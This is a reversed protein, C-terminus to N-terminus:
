KSTQPPLLQQMQQQMQKESEAIQAIRQSILYQMEMYKPVCRDVCSAEGKALDSDDFRTVCKKFCQDAMRTFLNVAAEMEHQPSIM